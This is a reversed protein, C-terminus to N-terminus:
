IWQLVKHPKMFHILTAGTKENSREANATRCTESLSNGNRLRSSIGDTQKRISFIDSESLSEMSWASRALNVNTDAVM